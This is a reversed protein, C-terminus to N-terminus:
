NYGAIHILRIDTYGYATLPYDVHDTTNSNVLIEVINGDDDYIIKSVIVSHSAWDDVVYQMVDGPKAAYIVKTTKAVLGGGTNEKCYQYFYETGSWSTSRGWASSYENVYDSYWKWQKYAGGVCDMPIGSEYLCQSVYNQCNGGFISYDSYEPNRKITNKGAWKYSYEVAKDANYPNEATVTFKFREPNENVKELIIAQRKIDEDAKAKLKASISKMMQESQLSSSVALEKLHYEEYDYGLYEVVKEEFLINVDTDEILKVFRYGNETKKIKAEVEMYASYSTLGTCAFDVAEYIMYKVDCYIGSFEVDSVIIRYDAKEYSLDATRANRVYVLYDLVYDNFDSYLKGYINTVDFYEALSVSELRGLAEYRADYYGIILQKMDENIKNEAKCGLRGTVSVQKKISESEEPKEKDSVQTATQPIPTAISSYSSSEETDDVEGRVVMITCGSSMLVVSLLIVVSLVKFICNLSRHRLIM